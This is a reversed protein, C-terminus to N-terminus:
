PFRQRRLPIEVAPVAVLPIVLLDGRVNRFFYLETEIESVYPTASEGVDSPGMAVVMRSPDTGRIQWVHWRRLDHLEGTRGPGRKQKVSRAYMPLTHREQFLSVHHEKVVM